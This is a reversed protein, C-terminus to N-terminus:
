FKLSASLHLIWDGHPSGASLAFGRAVDVVLSGFPAQAVAGAGVSVVGRLPPPEDFFLGCDTFVRPMVWQNVAYHVGLSGSAYHKTVITEELYGRITKAGGTRTYELTRLGVGLRNAIDRNEYRIKGCLQVGRTGVAVSSSGLVDFGLLLEHGNANEQRDSLTASLRVYHGTPWEASYNLKEFTYGLSYVNARVQYTAANFDGSTSDKGVLRSFSYGTEIRHFAAPFFRVAAKGVFQSATTDQRRFTGGLATGWASGYIYDWSANVDIHHYAPQLLRWQVSFREGQKFLSRFDIDANGYFDVGRGSPKPQFGFGAQLTNAKQPALFVHLIAGSPVYELVPSHTVRAYPLSSLISEVRQLDSPRITSVGAKYSLLAYVTRETLRLTGDQRLEVLRSAASSDCEAVVTVLSDRISLSISVRDEPSLRDALGESFSKAAALALDDYRLIASDGSRLAVCYRPGM